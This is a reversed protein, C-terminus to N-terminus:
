LALEARNDDDQNKLLTKIVLCYATCAIQAEYAHHTFNADRATCTELEDTNLNRAWVALPTLRSLCKNSMSKDGAGMRVAKEAAM